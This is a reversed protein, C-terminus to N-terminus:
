PASEAVHEEPATRRPTRQAAGARDAAQYATGQLASADVRRELSCVQQTVRQGCLHQTAAGREALDGLDQPMAIRLGGRDVRLDIECRQMRQGLRPRSTHLSRASWPLVRSGPM